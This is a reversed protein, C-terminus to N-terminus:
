ALGGVWGEVKDEHLLAIRVPGGCGPRSCNLGSEVQDLYFQDFARNGQLKGATTTRACGCRKCVIEIETRGDLDSLKLDHKWTM